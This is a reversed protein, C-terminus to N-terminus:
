IGEGLFSKREFKKLVVIAALGSWILPVWFTIMRSFLVLALGEELLVGNLNLILVLIGEFTGVGGPSLPLMSVLYALFTALSVLIFNLELGLFNSILFVKVPYLSWIVISIGLMPLLSIEKRNEKVAIITKLTFTKLKKLLGNKGEFPTGIKGRFFIHTLIILVGVLFFFAGYFWQPISFRSFGALFVLFLIVTFPILSIFKQTIFVGTLDEYSRGTIKKLLFIKAGEGGLKVSPTVSEVFGGALNVSFIDALSVNKRKKGLLYFLQYAGLFLTLLQLTLMFVLFSPTVGQWVKWIEEWGARIVLFGILSIGIIGFFIKKSM